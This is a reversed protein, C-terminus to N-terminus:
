FVDKIPQTFSIQYYFCLFESHQELYSAINNVQRRAHNVSTERGILFRFTSARGDYLTNSKSISLNWRM